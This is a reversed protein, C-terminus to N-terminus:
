TRENGVVQGMDDQLIEIPFELVEDGLGKRVDFTTTTKNSKM